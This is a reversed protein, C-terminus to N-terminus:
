YYRLPPHIVKNKLSQGQLMTSAFKWNFCASEQKWFLMKTTKIIYILSLKGKKEEAYKRLITQLPQIRCNAM